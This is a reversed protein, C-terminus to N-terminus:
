RLLQYAGAAGPEDQPEEAVTTTRVILEVPLTLEHPPEDHESLQQLLLTVGQQGLETMPQRITTLGFFPALDIDDYGIVALDHPVRLGRRQAAQLAGIALEDSAAFIATPPADLALLQEAMQLGMAHGDGDMLVYEPRAPLGHAQLASQYGSLREYNSRFDLEPQALGSIYAIRRHGLEILHEVAQRAGAANDFAISPLEPHRTDLLLTPIGAAHLRAVHEDSLVLSLVILADIRGRYPLETFYYDRKEATEINFIHLHYRTSAIMAEIGRLVAVYFPRTLFPVIVGITYTQATALQRASHSPRFELAAIADLVRARTADSVPGSQNLVRSVTGIGVGARQAVDKITAM